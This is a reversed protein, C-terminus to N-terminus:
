FQRISYCSGEDTILHIVAPYPRPAVDELQFVKSEHEMLQGSISYVWKEIRVGPNPLTSGQDEEDIWLPAICSSSETDLTYSAVVADDPLRVLYVDMDGGESYSNSSGLLLVRGGSDVLLDAPTDDSAGGFAAGNIWGGTLERRFIASATGGLGFSSTGGLTLIYSDTKAIDISWQSNEVQDWEMNMMSDLGILWSQRSGDEEFVLGLLRDLGSFYIEEIASGPQQDFLFEEAIAGDVWALLWGASSSSETGFSRYGALWLTDNNWSIDLLADEYDGGLIWEEVLNGSEDLELLYGNSGGSDGAYTRGVVFSHDNPGAAVKGGFDWEESGFNEQWIIQGNEDTRVVMVDYGGYTETNTFGSLLFGGDEMSRLGYGWEVGEAGYARSWMCQLNQDLRVLLMDTNTEQTSSTTGLVAYGGGDLELIIQGDESNPGGFTAVEAVPDQGRLTIAFSCSILLWLVKDM